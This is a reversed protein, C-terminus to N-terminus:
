AGAGDGPAYGCAGSPVARKGARDKDRRVTKICKCERGNDVDDAHEARLDLGPFHRHLFRM